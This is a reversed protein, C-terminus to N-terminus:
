YHLSYHNEFNYHKGDPGYRQYALQGTVPHLARSFVRMTIKLMEQALGVENLAALGRSTLILNISRGGGANAKRM